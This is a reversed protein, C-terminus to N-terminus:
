ALFLVPAKAVAELSAYSRQRGQGTGQPGSLQSVRRNSSARRSGRLPYTHSSILHFFSAVHVSACPSEARSAPPPSSSSQSSRKAACRDISRSARLRRRLWDDVHGQADNM